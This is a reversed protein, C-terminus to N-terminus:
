VVQIIYELIYIYVCLICVTDVLQGIKKKRSTIFHSSQKCYNRSCALIDADSIENTVHYSTWEIHNTSAM